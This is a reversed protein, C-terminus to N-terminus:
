MAMNRAGPSSSALGHETGTRSCHALADGGSLGTGEEGSTQGVMQFGARDIAEEAAKEDLGLGEIRRIGADGAPFADLGARQVVDLQPIAARDPAVLAGM